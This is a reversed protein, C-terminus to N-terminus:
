RQNLTDINWRKDPAYLKTMAREVYQGSLATKSLNIEALEKSVPHEGLEIRGANKGTGFREAWGDTLSHMVVKDKISYVHYQYRSAGKAVLKKAFMKLILKDNEKLTVELSEGQDNFTIDAMFKPLNWFHIGANLAIESTVPLRHIYFHFNQKRMMSIMPLGPLLFKPPFIIPIIISAENYQGISTDHCELASIGLLGIGPFVEIPKFSPHPLLKKLNSTKATFISAVFRLDYCLIPFEIQQGEMDLINRPTDKFFTSERM